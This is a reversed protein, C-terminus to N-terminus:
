RCCICNEYKLHIGGDQDTWLGNVPLPYQFHSQLPHNYILIDPRIASRVNTMKGLRSRVHISDNTIKAKRIANQVIKNQRKQTNQRKQSNVFKM